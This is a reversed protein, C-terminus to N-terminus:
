NQGNLRDQLNFKFIDKEYIFHIYFILYLFGFLFGGLVDTAYHVGLYIRSIGVLFIIIGLLFSYLIKMKKNKINKCILYILFGYFGLSIMSHGSPFSYGSAEILPHIGPRNRNFTHKLIQNLLFVLVLNIIIYMGVKKNKVQYLLIISLIILVAASAFNTIVIMAKTMGSANLMKIIEYIRADFWNIVGIMVEGKYIHNSYKVVRNVM